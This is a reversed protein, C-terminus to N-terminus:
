AAEVAYPMHKARFESAVRGADEESAFVGLHHFRGGVHAFAQWQGRSRRVGRFGSAAGSRSGVNQCNGIHPVVRLNARRNDTKVRNRHDGEMGDGPQLGLMERHMFVMRYRKKGATVGLYQGRVAYGNVLSWRWRSLWAHDAADVIAYGRIPSGSRHGGLQILSTAEAQLM